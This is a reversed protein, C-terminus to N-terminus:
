KAGEWQWKIKGDCRTVHLNVSCWTDGDDATHLNACNSCNAMARIQEDMSLLLTAIEGMHPKDDLDLEKLLEVAESVSIPKDNM